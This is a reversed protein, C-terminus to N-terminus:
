VQHGRDERGDEPDTFHMDLEAPKVGAADCLPNTDFMANIAIGSLHTTCNTTSISCVGDPRDLETLKNHSDYEFVTTPPKSTGNRTSSPLGSGDRWTAAAARWPPARM